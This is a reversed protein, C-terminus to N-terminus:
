KRFFDSWSVKYVKDKHYQLQMEQLPQKDIHKQFFFSINYCLCVQELYFANGYFKHSPLKGAKFSQNHEKFCNEITQRNKYFIWLKKPSYDLNTVLAYAVEKITHYIQCNRSKLIKRKEKIILINYKVPGILIYKNIKSISILSMKKLHNGITKIPM